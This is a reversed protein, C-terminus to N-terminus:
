AGRLLQVVPAFAEVDRVSYYSFGWRERCTRLHAAIEEHSGICLFPTSLADDVTIGVRAALTAAAQRRDDTVLVAQVLAHLEIATWRDGAATRMSAITADLREAEWRVDHRHGDERTRGLMTPAVIDAHRTAHALAARGNVGVLLPVHAQLSPLTAAEQLSYHTGNRTVTQGDLLARLIEVSEGLREKRVAPPDFPQGMAAYETFSHGAGLGVELRGGSLHDLTALEQALLVPHRLDNNLVLTGIRIRETDRAARALALLASPEAGVHDGVQVIDFGVEEAARADRTVDTAATSTSQLGFRFPRVQDVIDLAGHGRAHRPASV